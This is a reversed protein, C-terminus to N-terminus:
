LTIIRDNLSSTLKELGDHRVVCTNEVGVAGIGPLTFKPEIALIMGEKIVAKSKYSLVPLEDLEIGVGHGVFKSKQKYGMFYEGFGSEDAMKVAEEYIDGCLAGPKTQTIIMDQIELAAEHAAIANDPARGISYTRSTDTIYGDFNTAFDVLVTTGEYMVAGIAGIPMTKNEGAGGIAYDYPSPATANSGSSLANGNGEFYRSFMRIYGLHGSSRLLYEIEIGLETDTMGKEYISPISKFVKSAKDASEKILSVEYPTKVSRIERMLNSAPLFITNPFVAQLRVVEAYTVQADEILLKSPAEIGKASLLEPIQEPKRLYETNKFEWVGAKKVFHIPEGKLPLYYYGNFVTGTTYIINSVCTLLLGDAGTAEIRERINETRSAIDMQERVADISYRNTKEM